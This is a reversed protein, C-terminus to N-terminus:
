LWTVDLVSVERKHRKGPGATQLDQHTCFM